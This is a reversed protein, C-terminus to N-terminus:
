ARWISVEILAISADVSPGPLAVTLTLASRLMFSVVSFSSVYASLPVGSFVVESVSFSVPEPAAAPPVEPM